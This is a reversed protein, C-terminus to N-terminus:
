DKAVVTGSIFVNSGMSISGGNQNRITLNKRPSVRVKQGVQYEEPIDVVITDIGMMVVDLKITYRSM